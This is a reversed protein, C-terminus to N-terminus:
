AKLLCRQCIILVYVLSRGRMTRSRLIRTRCTRICVPKIEEELLDATKCTVSQVKGDKGVRERKLIETELAVRHDQTLNLEGPTCIQVGQQERYGNITRHVVSFDDAIWRDSRRWWKLCFCYGSLQM